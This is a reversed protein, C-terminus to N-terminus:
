CKKSCGCKRVIEVNKTYEVGSPCVMKVSRVKNKVPKCCHSGCSGSCEARKVKRVSRCGNEHIHERKVQKQCTPAQDCFPGSWGPKCKCEYSLHDTPLCRGKQCLHNECVDRQEFSACGPTVGRQQNAVMIDKLNGNVYIKTMCGEFSSDNWIHYKQLASTSLTKPLGGIYLPKQVELFEKSGENVITRVMGDDVQLTFNKKVLLFKLTHYKGDSVEEYSFMTSVPYNGVDLSVRIRGRFLEIALHENEGFYLLVGNEKKTAFSLTVNAIPKTSLPDFALYSGENFSVSALLDCRKGTFGSHCKCIYDTGGNPQFCVGHKCDHQQCPSTQPYLMEVLPALECFTGGFSDPCQCRYGNVEDICIGRNQCAHDVCDDVNETCNDGKWGLPCSCNYYTKHDFCTGGNKCPNFEKSCFEIKKECYDGTFGDECKCRYNGVGDVCAGHECKNSVCDDINIECRYGEFGSLCHCSFRGAELVKCTGGNECPNGFCADIKFECRDGYFGPACICRFQRLPQTVCTAGNKCPFGYCADCKALVTPEPESLCVFQDTPTTLILKDRMSRPESCKAIGPEKYDKKIWESMWRLNCDCYLPNSGLAIHTISVLDKFAGNPILSIDNGHLSLIRLSKLGKFSEAQICELKNYSLILTELKTLNSFAFDPLLSIRNNSLDLRKLETLKNISSSVTAIDNVDLYLETTANSIYNPIITLKKQSCRVLTGQCHCKSPCLSDLECFDDASDKDNENCVFDGAEVDQIPVGKLREPSQCIPNGTAINNKRLWESFWKMHCNCHLPNSLLNLTSLSKLKDFAGPKICRIKNEYLSLLRITVLDAFTDNSISTLFNNRLVMRPRIHTLKNQTLLLDNLNSAGLFSGDEIDSIQNQRLDLRQLNLLRKFIGNNRVKSISNGNLRLESTFLPIDEPIERLNKQSCDVITGECVCSTPCEKDVLCNGANRTRVEESGLCKFKSPDLATIRRRQIRRPGDCRADSTEIPHKQLYSALWKLNCDCIFPNEGLHRNNVLHSRLSFFLFYSTNFFPAFRSSFFFIFFLILYRENNKEFFIKAIAFM